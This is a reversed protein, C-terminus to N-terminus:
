GIRLLLCSLKGLISLCIELIMLFSSTEGSGFQKPHDFKGMDALESVELSSLLFRSIRRIGIWWLSNRLSSNRWSSNQPSLIRPFNRPSSNRRPSIRLYSNWLTAEFILEAYTLEAFILDTSTFDALTLEALTIDM